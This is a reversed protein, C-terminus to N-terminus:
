RHTYVLDGGMSISYMVDDRNKPLDESVDDRVEREVCAGNKSVM